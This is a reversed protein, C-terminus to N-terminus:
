QMLENWSGHTIAYKVYVNLAIHENLFWSKCHMMINISLNILYKLVITLVCPLYQFTHKYSVKSMLGSVEAVSLWIRAYISLHSMDWKLNPKEQIITYSAVFSHRRFM